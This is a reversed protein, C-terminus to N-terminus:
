DTENARHLAHILARNEDKLQAIDARLRAILAASNENSGASGTGNTESVVEIDSELPTTQAAGSVHSPPPPPPPPPPPAQTPTPALRKTTSGMAVSEAAADGGASARGRKLSHFKQLIESDSKFLPSEGNRAVIKDSMFESLTNPSQASIRSRLSQLTKNMSEVYEMKESIFEAYRTANANKSKSAVHIVSSRVKYETTQGNNKVNFVFEAVFMNSKCEPLHVKMCVSEAVVLILKVYEEPESNFRHIAEEVNFADSRDFIAGTSSVQLVRISTMSWQMGDGLLNNNPSGDAPPPPPVFAVVFHMTRGHSGVNMFAKHSQHLIQVRAYSDSDGAEVQAMPNMKSNSFVCTTGCTKHVHLGYNSLRFLTPSSDEFNVFPPLTAVSASGSAGDVDNEADFLSDWAEMAPRSSTGFAPLNPVNAEVVKTIEPCVEARVMRLTELRHRSLLGSQLMLEFSVWACCSVDVYRLTRFNKEDGLTSLMYFSSEGTNFNGAMALAQLGPCAKALNDVVDETLHPCFSIDLEVLKHVGRLQISDLMVLAMEWSDPADAAQEQDSVGGGKEVAPEIMQVFDDTIEACRLPLCTINGDLLGGLLTDTLIGRPQGGSHLTLALLAIQRLMEEKVSPPMTALAAIEEASVGQLDACIYRVCLAELTPVRPECTRWDAASQKLFERTARDYEPRASRRLVQSDLYAREKARKERFKEFMRMEMVQRSVTMPEPPRPGLSTDAERSWSAGASAGAAAVGRRKPMAEAGRAALAARIEQRAQARWYGCKGHREPDPKWPM